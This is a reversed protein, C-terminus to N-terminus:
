KTDVGAEGCRRQRGALRVAMLNMVVSVGVLLGRVGHALNSDHAPVFLMWLLAVVLCLLGISRMVKPEKLRDRLIM